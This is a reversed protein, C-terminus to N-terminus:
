GTLGDGDILISRGFGHVYRLILEMGGLPERKGMVLGLPWVALSGSQRVAHLTLKSRRTGVKNSALWGASCRM